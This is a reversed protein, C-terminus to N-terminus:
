ARASEKAPTASSSASHAVHAWTLLDILLTVMLCGILTALILNAQVHASFVFAVIGAGGFRIVFSVLSASAAVPLSQGASAALVLGSSLSLFLGIGAGVVIPTGANTFLLAIVGVLLAVVSPTISIMLRTWEHRPIMQAAGHPPQRTLRASFRLRNRWDL